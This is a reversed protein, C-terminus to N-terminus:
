IISSRDYRRGKWTVGRGSLVNITSHIMLLSFALLAPPIALAWRLPLRMLETLKLSFALLAACQVGSQLLTAREIASPPQDAARRALARGFLVTPFVVVAWPLVIGAAV